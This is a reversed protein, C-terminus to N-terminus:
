EMIIILQNGKENVSFKVDKFVKDLKGRLGGSEFFEVCKSSKECIRKMVQVSPLRIRKGSLIYFFYFVDKQYKEYLVLLDDIPIRYVKSIYYLSLIAEDLPLRLELNGDTDM